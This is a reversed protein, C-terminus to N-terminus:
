SELDSGAFSDTTPAGFVSGFQSSQPSADFESPLPSVPSLPETSPFWDPTTPTIPEEQDVQLQQPPQPVQNVRVQQPPQPVQQQTPQNVQNVRLQQPPQPVKKVQQAPQNVQNVQLQQPPQPKKQQAPQNVQKPPITVQQPPRPPTEQKRKRKRKSPVSNYSLMESSYDEYIEQIRLTVPVVKGKFSVEIENPPKASLGKGSIQRVVDAVTDNPRVALTQVTGSADVIPFESSWRRDCCEKTTCTDKYKPKMKCTYYQGYQKM